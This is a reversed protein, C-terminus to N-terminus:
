HARLAGSKYRVKHAYPRILGTRIDRFQFLATVRKDFGEEIAQADPATPTGNITRSVNKGPTEEILWNEL